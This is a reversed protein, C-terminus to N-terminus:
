VDCVVGIATGGESVIQAIVEDIENQQLDALVLNAGEKAFLLAIARGMGASAGTVIATLKNLKKM